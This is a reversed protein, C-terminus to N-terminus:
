KHERWFRIMRTSDWGEPAKKRLKENLLVARALNRQESRIKERIAERIVESWNIHKYADMKRKTERDVRVSIVAMITISYCLFLLIVKFTNLSFVSM